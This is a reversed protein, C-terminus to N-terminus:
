FPINEKRNKRAKPLLIADPIESAKPIKKEVTTQPDVGGVSYDRSKTEKRSYHAYQEARADALQRELERVSKESMNNVGTGM